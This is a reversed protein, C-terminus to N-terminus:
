VYLLGGLRSATLSLVCLHNNSGPTSCNNNLSRKSGKVCDMLTNNVEESRPRSLEQTLAFLACLLRVHTLAFLAIQIPFHPSIFVKEGLTGATDYIFWAYYSTAGIYFLSYPDLM